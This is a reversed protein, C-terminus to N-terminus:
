YGPNQTLSGQSDLIASYPVPFLEHKGDVFNKGHARMVLGARGQRVLDFFRDEEMALEFRREKWIANRIDTQSSATADPLGARSRITKLASLAAASNGLENEAEAKILYIEGLRMLRINKNSNWDDYNSELNKSVYAKYNYRDNKVSDGNKVRAGDWLIQGKYYITAARRLDGAEYSTDLDLSPTNFGWGSYGDAVEGRPGQFTFYAPVTWGELGNQCQIEFISEPGNEGIMRFMEAYNTALTYQGSSLVADAMAKCNAWDKQYMYVKALYAEAAGKTARGVTSASKEPLKSAADKLDQIILKYVDAKPARVNAAEVNNADTVLPVDGFCRVLTFYFHARLFQAEGVLRSKVADSVPFKPVNQIAQLCRGVGELNSNWVDGLSGSTPSYTLNDFQDKDSGTDGPESGKDADDSSISSVGVWSFGHNGWSIFESYCANVFKEANAPDNFTTDTPVLVNESKPSLWNKKCSAVSLWLFFCILPYKIFKKM